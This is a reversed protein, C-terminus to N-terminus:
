AWKYEAPVWCPFRCEALHGLKNQPGVYSDANGAALVPFFVQSLNQFFIYTLPGSPYFNAIFFDRATLTAHM